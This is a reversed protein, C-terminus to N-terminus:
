DEPQCNALDDTTAAYHPGVEIHAGVAWGGVAPGGAPTFANRYDTLIAGCRVCEQVGEIMPGAIHVRIM